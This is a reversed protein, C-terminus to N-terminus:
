IHQFFAIPASVDFAIPLEKSVLGRSKLFEPRTCKNALSLGNLRLALAAKGEFIVFIM